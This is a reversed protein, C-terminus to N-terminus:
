SRDERRLRNGEKAREQHSFREEGDGWPDGNTHYGNVEWFGRQEGVLFEFGNVWKAGKWAWRKPVHVRAPFGHDATIAEGNWDCVLMVDEDLMVEYENNTTYGGYAHQMVHDCTDLPKALAFIDKLLYGGFNMDLASWTTVCHYDVTLQVYPLQQLDQWNLEIENECAGFLRLRWQDLDIQPTPGYTLVPWKTTLHQGNPMREQGDPFSQIAQFRDSM